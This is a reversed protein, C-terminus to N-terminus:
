QGSHGEVMLHYPQKKCLLCVPGHGNEFSFGIMVLLLDYFYDRFPESCSLSYSFKTLKAGCHFCRAKRCTRLKILSSQMHVLMSSKGIVAAPLGFRYVIAESSKLNLSM